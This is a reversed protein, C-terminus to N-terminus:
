PHLFEEHNDGKSSNSNNLQDDANITPDHIRKKSLNAIIPNLTQKCNRNEVVFIHIYPTYGIM